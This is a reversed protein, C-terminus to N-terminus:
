REDIFKRVDKARYFIKGRITFYKLIGDDRYRQLTRANIKLLLSMDQNDLVQIDALKVQNTFRRIQEDTKDLRENIRKFFLELSYRDIDEM